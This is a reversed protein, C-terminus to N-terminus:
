PRRALETLAAQMRDVVRAAAARPDAEPAVRIPPLVRLRIRFPLPLYPVWPGLGLGWPACLAIPFCQVRAWRRLGTARALWRGEHVILASRHAGEAVIPVIPVRADRAITAFGARPGFVVRDARWFPRYADLDGGPYVLVQGGSGLVRRANDPHARMCGVRQLIRGLPIVRRMALDHAMGYLPADPGLARWLMSLTCFLDPGMIGGNHNAVYLTPERRLHELGEIELKLYRQALREFLPLLAEITAPDRRDLRYPDFPTRDTAADALAELARRLSADEDVPARPPPPPGVAADLM